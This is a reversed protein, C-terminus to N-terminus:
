PDGQNDPLTSKKFSMGKLPSVVGAAGPFRTSIGESTRKAKCAPGQQSPLMSCINVCSPRIPAASVKVAARAEAAIHSAIKLSAEWPAPLGASEYPVAGLAVEGFASRAVRLDMPRHKTEQRLAMQMCLPIELGKSTVTIPNCRCAALLVGRRQHGTM